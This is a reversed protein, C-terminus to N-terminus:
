DDRKAEQEAKAARWGACFAMFRMNHIAHGVDEDTASEVLSVFELNKAYEGAAKNMKENNSM